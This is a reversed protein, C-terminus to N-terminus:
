RSRQHSMATFLSIKNIPPPTSDEPLVSGGEGGGCGIKTLAQNKYTIHYTNADQHHRDYGPFFAWIPSSYPPASIPVAGTATITGSVGPRDNRPGCSIDNFGTENILGTFGIQGTPFVPNLKESDDTKVLSLLAPKSHKAKMKSVEATYTEQGIHRYLEYIM